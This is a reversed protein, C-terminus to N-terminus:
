LKTWNKFKLKTWIKFNLKNKQYWEPLTIAALLFTAMLFGAIAGMWWDRFSMISIVWCLIGGWIMSIYLIAVKIWSLKM